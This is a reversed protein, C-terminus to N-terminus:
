IISIIQNILDLILHTSAHLVYMSLLPAYLTKTPFSFSRSKSSGPMSPLTNDLNIKLVHSPPPGHVPNIQSLLPVLPLFKYVHYHVKQNWLAHPFKNVLQSSSLKELLVRSWPTLSFTHLCICIGLQLCRQFAM